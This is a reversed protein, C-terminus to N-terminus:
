YACVRAHMYFLIRQVCPTHHINLIRSSCVFRAFSCYADAVLLDTKNVTVCCLIRTKHTLYILFFFHFTNVLLLLVNETLVVCFM